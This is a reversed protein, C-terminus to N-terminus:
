IKRTDGTIDGGWFTWVTWWFVKQKLKTKNGEEQTATEGEVGEAGPQAGRGAGEAEPDRTRDAPPVERESACFLTVDNWHLRKDFPVKAHNGSGVQLQQLERINADCQLQLDRM